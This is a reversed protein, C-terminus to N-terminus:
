LAGEFLVVAGGGIALCLASESIQFVSSIQARRSACSIGRASLYRLQQPDSVINRCHWMAPLPGDSPASAEPLLRAARAAGPQESKGHVDEIARHQTHSTQTSIM